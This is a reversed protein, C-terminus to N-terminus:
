VITLFILLAYLCVGAWLLSPAVLLGVVMAAVRASSHMLVKYMGVLAIGGGGVGSVGLVAYTIPFELGILFRSHGGYILTYTIHLVLCAVVQLPLAAFAWYLHSPFRLHRM